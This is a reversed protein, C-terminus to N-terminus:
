PSGCRGSRLETSRGPQVVPLDYSVSVAVSTPCLTAKMTTRGPQASRHVRACALWGPHGCMGDTTRAPMRLQSAPAAHAPLPAPAPATRPAPAVHRTTAPAAPAPQPAVRPVVHPAVDVGPVLGVRGAPPLPEQVLTQGPPAVLSLVSAIAVAAGFASVAAKGHRRRRAAGFALALGDAPPAVAVFGSM